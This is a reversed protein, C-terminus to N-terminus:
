LISYQLANGYKHRPDPEVPDKVEPLDYVQKSYEPDKKLDIRNRRILVPEIVTRIQSSLEKAREKVKTLDIHKSGFLSEYFAVAKQKKDGENTIFSSM